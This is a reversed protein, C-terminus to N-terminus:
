WLVHWLKLILLDRKPFLTKSLVACLWEMPIPHKGFLVVSSIQANLKLIKKTLSSHINHRWHLLRITRDTLLLGPTGRRRSSILPRDHAYCFLLPLLLLWHCVWPDGKSPAVLPRRVTCLIWNRRSMPRPVILNLSLQFLIIVQHWPQQLHRDHTILLCCKLSNIIGCQEGDTISVKSNLIPTDTPEKSPESM